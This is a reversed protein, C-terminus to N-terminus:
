LPHTAKPLTEHGGVENASDILVIKDAKRDGFFHFIQSYRDIFAEIRTLISFKWGAAYHPCARCYGDRHRPQSFDSFRHRTGALLKASYAGSGFGSVL